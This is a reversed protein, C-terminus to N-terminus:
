YAPRHLVFEIRPGVFEEDLDSDADDGADVVFPGDAMDADALILDFEAPLRDMGKLRIVMANADDDFSTVALISEDPTYASVIQSGRHTKEGIIGIQTLTFVVLAAAALPAAWSLQLWKPLWSARAPKAAEAEDLDRIQKQLHSNFFDAFPPTQEAPFTAKLDESLQSFFAQDEELSLGEEASAAKLAEVEEPSLEGDIWRNWQEESPKM